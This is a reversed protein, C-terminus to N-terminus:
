NSKNNQQGMFKKRLIEDVRWFIVAAIFTLLILLFHEFFYSLVLGSLLGFIIHILFARKSRQKGNLNKTLYDSLVSLPLGILLIFPAAGVLLVGLAPFFNYHNSDSMLAFYVNLFLGTLLTTIVFDSFKRVVM